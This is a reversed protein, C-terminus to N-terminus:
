AGALRRLVTVEPRHGGQFVRLRREPEWLQRVEALCGELLRIDQTVLVMRAAPAAVRAAERLMRPYLHRNDGHSGVLDGYPLDATLAEFAGDACPLCGADARVLDIRGSLGAAELNERATLSEYLYSSHSLLAVARRVDLRHEVIDFGGVTARGHDPRLLAALLRLLTSKGSGNRGTVM